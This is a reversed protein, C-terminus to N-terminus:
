EPWKQEIKKINKHLFKTIESMVPHGFREWVKLTLDKNFIFIAISDLTSYIFLKDGAININKYIQIPKDPSSSTKLFESLTHCDECVTLLDDNDAEWPNGCYRLHHVNLTTETDGCHRCKFKDRKMIELRKRQWKPHKLKESYDSM